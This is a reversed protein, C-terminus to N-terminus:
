RMVMAVSGSLATLPLPSLKLTMGEPGDLGAEGVGVGTAGVGGRSSSGSSMVPVGVGVVVGAAALMSGLM